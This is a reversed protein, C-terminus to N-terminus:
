ALKLAISVKKPKVEVFRSIRTWLEPDTSRLGDYAKPDLVTEAPVIKLPLDEAKIGLAMIADVNAKYSLERKVTLKLPGAAVTRSGNEPTEVLAAIQEEIEIRKAKAADEAKKADYLDSALTEMKDM